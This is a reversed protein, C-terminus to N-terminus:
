NLIGNIQHIIGDSCIINSEKGEIVNTTTNNRDGKIQLDGPSGIIELKRYVANFDTSLQVDKCLTQTTTTLAQTSFIDFDIFFYKVFNQLGEEDSPLKGEEIYKDIAENTPIFVTPNNGHM